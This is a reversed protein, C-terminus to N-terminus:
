LRESPRRFFRYAFVGSLLLLAAPVAALAWFWGLDIATAFIVLALAGFVGLLGLLLAVLYIPRDVPGQHATPLAAVPKGPVTAVRTADADGSQVALEPELSVSRGLAGADLRVTLADHDVDAIADWPVARLEPLAPPLGGEVALFLEEGRRLVVKVKGIPKGEASEVDYDELGVADAAAM